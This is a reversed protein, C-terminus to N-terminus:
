SPGSGLDAGDKYRSEIFRREAEFGMLRETRVQECLDDMQDAVIGLSEALRRSSEAHFSREGPPLSLYTTVLDPLHEGILRRAEGGLPTEPKITELSPQLDRLRFVIRDLSPGAQSPLARCRALLWDETQSALRDLRVAQGGDVVPRPAMDAKAPRRRTRDRVPLTMVAFSVMVIAVMALLFTFFGVSAFGLMYIVLAVFLFLFTIGARRLRVFLSRLGRQVRFRPNEDPGWPGPGGEPYYPELRGSM